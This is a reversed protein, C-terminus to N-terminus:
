RWSIAPILEDWNPLWLRLRGNVGNAFHGSDAHTGQAEQIAQTQAELKDLRRQKERQEHLLRMQTEQQIQLEQEAAALSQAIAQIQAQAAVLRTEVDAKQAQRDTLRQQTAELSQTQEQIQRELQRTREQLQAQETRQPELADVLRKSRM